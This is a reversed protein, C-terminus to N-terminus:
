RGAGSLQPSQEVCGLQQATERLQTLTAGLRAEDVRLTYRLLTQLRPVRGLPVLPAVLLMKDDIFAQVERRPTVWNTELQASAAAVEACTTPPAHTSPEGHTFRMVVPSRRADDDDIPTILVTNDHQAVALAFTNHHYPRLATMVRRVEVRQDMLTADDFVLTGLLILSTGDHGPQHRRAPTWADVTHLTARVTEVDDGFPVDLALTAPSCTPHFDLQASLAPLLAGDADVAVNLQGHWQQRRSPGKPLTSRALDGHSATFDAIGHRVDDDDLWAQEDVLVQADSVFSWTNTAFSLAYYGRAGDVYTGVVRVERATNGEGTQLISIAKPLRAGPLLPVPPLWRWPLLPLFYPRLSTGMSTPDEDVRIESRYTYEFNPTGGNLDYDDFRTVVRGYADILVVASASAAIGAAIFRGDDPACLERSFDNPLGNDTFVIKTGTEDLVYMTSTGMPGMHQRNGIADEFWLAHEARRGFAVGRLREAAGELRLPRKSPFGWGDTWGSSSGWSRSRATCTYVFGTEDVAILEDGDARLMSLRAPSRFTGDVITPEPTGTLFLRWPEALTGAGQPHRKFWIRGEVLAYLHDRHFTATDTKTSLTPPLAVLPQAPLVAARRHLVVVMRAEPAVLTDSRRTTSLPMGWLQQTSLARAVPLTATPAFFLVTAEVRWPSRKLLWGVRTVAGDGDIATEIYPAAGSLDFSGDRQDAHAAYWARLHAEDILATNLELLAGPESVTSALIDGPRSFVTSVLSSSSRAFDQLTACSCALLAAAMLLVRVVVRM